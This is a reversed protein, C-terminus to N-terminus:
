RVDYRRFALVAGAFLVLNYIALLALDPLTQALADSLSPPHYSFPPPPGIDLPKSLESQSTAQWDPRYADAFDLWVRQYAKAQDEFREDLSPATGALETAALKFVSAPSIRALNLTIRDRYRLQNRRQEELHDIIPADRERLEKVIDEFHKWPEKEGKRRLEDVRKSAEQFQNMRLNMEQDIIESRALVPVERSSVGGALRPVIEVVAIWVVLLILFSQSSRTTLSSVLASCTLFTGLYLGAAGIILALRVLEGPGLPIGLLPLILVGILMPILLPVGLALFTGVLKGLILQDRPLANSLQLGLTGREKEGTVTDFAFMIAFLSLAITVVFEFDLLRFVAYIPEEEFRSSQTWIPSWQNVFTTRGVDNSVGSVVSQLPQPQLHVRWAIDFAKTLRDLQSRNDEVASEYNELSIRYNLAGSYFALLILISMVGFTVAFKRSLLIERIEKRILLRLM